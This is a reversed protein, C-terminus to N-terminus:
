SWSLSSVTLDYPPTHRVVMVTGIGLIQVCYSENLSENM